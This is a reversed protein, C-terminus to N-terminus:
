GNSYLYEGVRLRTDTITTNSITIIVTQGAIGSFRYSTIGLTAAANIVEQGETGTATGSFAIATIGTGTVSLTINAQVDQTLTFTTASTTTGSSVYTWPFNGVATPFPASNSTSSGSDLASLIASAPDLQPTMLEVEYEVYLEGIVTTGAQGSVAVNFNGIDYLKVDQNSSLAGFRVFNSLNKHLDEVL